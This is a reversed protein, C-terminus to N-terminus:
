EAARIPGDEDALSVLSPSPEYRQSGTQAHPRRLTEVPNKTGFADTMAAPGEPFGAGLEMPRDIDEVPAVDRETLKDLSWELRDYGKQVLEEDMYRRTVTDGALSAGQAIGHGMTGAGLVSVTAVERVAM